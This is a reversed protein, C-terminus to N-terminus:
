RISQQCRGRKLIKVDLEDDGGATMISDALSSADDHVSSEDNNETSFVQTTRNRGDPM